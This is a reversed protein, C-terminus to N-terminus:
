ESKNNLTRLYSCVQDINSCYHAVAETQQNTIPNVGGPTAVIFGNEIQTIQVQLM